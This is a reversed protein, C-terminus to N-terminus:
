SAVTCINSTVTISGLVLGVRQKGVIGMAYNHVRTDSVNAHLWACKHHVRIGSGAMGMCKSGAMGM